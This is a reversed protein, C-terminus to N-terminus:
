TAGKARAHYHLSQYIQRTDLLPILRKDRLSPGSMGKRRRMKGGKGPVLGAAKAAWPGLAPKIRSMIRRRMQAIAYKGLVDIAPKRKPQAIAQAAVQKRLRDLQARTEGEALAAAIVSRKPVGMGFEHYALVQAVSGPSRPRSGDRNPRPRFAETPGGRPGQSGVAVEMAALARLNAVAADLRKRDYTTGQVPM